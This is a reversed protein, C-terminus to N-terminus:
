GLLDATAVADDAPQQSGASPASRPIEDYKIMKQRIEDAEAHGLEILDALAHQWATRAARPDGMALLTDGMSALTSAHDYRSVVERFLEIAQQYCDLAQTLQGLHHHAYGLCDLAEAEGDRDGNDRHMDLAQGCAELAVPYTGLQANFWGIANLATARGRHHDVASYLHLARKACELADTHREM